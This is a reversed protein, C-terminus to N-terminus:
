LRALDAVSQVVTLGPFGRFHLDFTLLPLGHQLASAAIWMDNTPIPTGAARLAVYVEAHREATLADM